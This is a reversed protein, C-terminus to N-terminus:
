KRKWMVALVILGIIILGGIGLGAIQMGYPEETVKWTIVALSVFIGFVLLLVFPFPSAHLWIHVRYKDFTPATDQEVTYRLLHGGHLPVFGKIAVGISGALGPLGQFEGAFHEAKGTYTQGEVTGEDRVLAYAM